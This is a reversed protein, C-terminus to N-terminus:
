YERPPAYISLPHPYISIICLVQHQASATKNCEHDSFATDMLDLLHILIRDLTVARAAHREMALFQCISGDGAFDSFLLSFPPACLKDQACQRSSTIKCPEWLIYSCCVVKEM